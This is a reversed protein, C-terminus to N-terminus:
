PLFAYGTWDDGEEVQYEIWGSIRYWSSDEKWTYEWGGGSTTTYRYDSWWNSGTISFSSSLRAGAFWLGGSSTQISDSGVALQRPLWGSSQLSCGSSMAFSAHTVEKPTLTWGSSTTTWEYSVRDKHRKWYRYLDADQRAQWTCVEGSFSVSGWVSASWDGRVKYKEDLTQSVTREDYWRNWTRWSSAKDIDFAATGGTVRATVTPCDVSWCDDDGCDTWGDGDDDVGNDCLSEVCDASGVCDADECDLTGDLDNDVGDRCNGAELCVPDDVCDQDLCDEDWDCDEDLGSGCVELQDPARAATTDDCDNANASWGPTDPCLHVWSSGDGYGDGDDDIYMRVVDVAEEDLVWDCDEDLGDCHEDAGPHVEANGDDCDESAHWGDGDDDPDIETELVRDIDPAPEPESGTCALLLLM